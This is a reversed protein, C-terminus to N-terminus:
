VGWNMPPWDSLNFMDQGPMQNSLGFPFWTDPATNFGDSGFLPLTNQLDLNSQGAWSASVQNASAGTNSSADAPPNTTTLTMLEKALTVVKPPIAAQGAQRLASETAEWTQFIIHAMPRLLMRPSLRTLLNARAQFNMSMYDWCQERQKILPRKRLDQLIHLYAPFPFYMHVLWLYGTALPSELIRSDCDLMALAHTIAADREPKSQRTTSDKSFYELLRCKALWGRTMWITIFHLPTEPDCFRLYREEVLRQVIDLEGPGPSKGRFEKAVAKLPPCTFDLHFASSRQFDAMEGRVVVFLAESLPGQIKPPDKMGPRLQFDNVNTPVKCDWLPTLTTTRYDAMEGIRTDFIVLAWWLRRRREAELPPYRACASESSLGIRQATRIAIGLMSSLARPDGITPRLSVLYLYSATLCDVDDSRLFGCQILAQRCSRQNHAMFEQHPTGFLAECEEVSLSLTAICYISFMIAEMIPSINKINAVAEIIRSQLTPTHTVKLLPDVNDLYIQWLRLIQSPEPHNSSLDIPTKQGGFLPDSHSFGQDWAKKVVHETMAAVASNDDEDSEPSADNMAHWFSKAEYQRKSPKPHSPPSQLSTERDDLGVSQQRSHEHDGHLSEFNVNNEKLLTEYRHLRDLLEREPFRRKRKKPLLGAPVCNAKAKLCNACPFSRDCRIKRQQCLVCSLVRVPKTDAPSQVEPNTDSM